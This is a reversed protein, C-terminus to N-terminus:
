TFGMAERQRALLEELQKVQRPDLPITPVEPPNPKSTANTNPEPPPPEPLNTMVSPHRVSRVGVWSRYWPVVVGGGWGARGDQTLFAHGPAAGPRPKRVLGLEQNQLGGVFM